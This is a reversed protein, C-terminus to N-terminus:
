IYFNPKWITVANAPLRIKIHFPQGHWTEYVPKVPSGNVMGSGGYASADSSILECYDTFRPVGVKYEAFPVESFNCVVILFEKDQRSHRIFCFVGQKGADGDIWSFGKSESELEWLAPETLYMCNLAKIYQFVGDHPKQELLAWDLEGNYKWEQIQAFENGMFILKKGPLTMMYGYLTRISQFACQGMFKGVLSKKGQVFEDHSLPLICHEQFGRELSSCIEHGYRNRFSPDRILYQLTDHMWGMNWTYDFGLGGRYDPKTIHEWGGSEEAIMIAGGIQRKVARNLKKMFDIAEINENGGQINQIEGYDTYEYYLMNSVADMRIGDIHFEKLFYFASSLLYSQVPGKTFDFNLTNWQTNKRRKPDTHEFLFTGDFRELGHRDSVFHSPVWDLIVGIGANHLENVFARFDDPVGYRSTVSYYGTNQYGWSADAPHETVPLLEVFNYHMAQLYPILRAALSRYNLFQQQCNRKWSGLHMEYINIPASPATRNSRTQMWDDDSWQFQSQYIVSSRQPRLDSLRAYPDAKRLWRGRITQIRYLYTDLPQAEPVFLTWIGFEDIRQMRHAAGSWGNFSGIVQVEKAEPAWVTFRIGAYEEGDIKQTDPCAGLFRYSDYSNGELFLTMDTKNM